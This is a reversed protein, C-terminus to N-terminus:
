KKPVTLVVFDSSASTPHNSKTLHRRLKANAEAATAHKSLPVENHKDWLVFIDAVLYGM